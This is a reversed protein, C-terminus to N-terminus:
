GTCFDLSSADIAIARSTSWISALAIESRMARSSPLKESATRM